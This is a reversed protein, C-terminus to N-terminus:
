LLVTMGDYATVANPFIMKAAKEMEDIDADSMMYNYHYLALQKANVQKAWKACESPSSHGWGPIVNGDSFASDMVLLDADRTFDKLKEDDQHATLEVDDCYCFSKGNFEVRYGLAGGPHSLNYTQVKVDNSLLITEGSGISCYSIEARFAETGVPCLPPSIISSLIEKVDGSGYINFKKAPDFLESCFLFGDIHDMHYHSFFLHIHACKNYPMNRFSCIGSGADFILTEEGAKLAVCPTNSGYKQRKSNNYSCSGNTGLFTVEFSNNM